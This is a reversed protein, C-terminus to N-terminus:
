RPRDRSGTGGASPGEPRPTRRRWRRRSTRRGGAGPSPAARTCPGPRCPPPRASATRTPPSGGPGPSRRGPAVCGRGPGTRFPGPPGPSGPLRILGDPPVGRPFSSFSAREPGIPPGPCLARPRSRSPAAPPRVVATEAGGGGVRRDSRCEGRSRGRPVGAARATGLCGVWAEEEQAADAGDVGGVEVVVPGVAAVGGEAAGEGEAGGGDDALDGVGAEEAPAAGGEGGAALPLGGGGLRVM